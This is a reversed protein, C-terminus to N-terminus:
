QAVPASTKPKPQVPAPVVPMLGPAPAPTEPQAAPLSSCAVMNNLSQNKMSPHAMLAAVPDTVHPNTGLVEAMLKTAKGRYWDATKQASCACIEPINYNENLEYLQDNSVCEFNIMERAIVETCPAYVELLMKNSVARTATTNAQIVHLEEATMQTILRASTCACLATISERKVGTGAKSLCTAFYQNAQDRSVQTAQAPASLCLSLTCICLAVIYRM